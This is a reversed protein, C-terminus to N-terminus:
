KGSEPCRPWASRSVAVSAATQIHARSVVITDEDRFVAIELLGDLKWSRWRLADQDSHAVRGGIVYFLENTLRYGIDISELVVTSAQQSEGSV